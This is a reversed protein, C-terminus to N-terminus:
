WAQQTSNEKIARSRDNDDRGEDYGERIVPGAERM